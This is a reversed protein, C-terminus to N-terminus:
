DNPHITFKKKAPILAHSQVDCQTKHLSIRFQKSNQEPIVADFVSHDVEVNRRLMRVQFMQTRKDKKYIQLCGPWQIGILPAIEDKQM